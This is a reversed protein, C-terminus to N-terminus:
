TRVVQVIVDRALELESTGIREELRLVVRQAVAVSSVRRTEDRRPSSTALTIVDGACVDQSRVEILSSIVRSVFGGRRAALARPEPRLLALVVGSGV